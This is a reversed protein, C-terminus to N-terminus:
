RPTKKQEDLWEEYLLQAVVKTLEAMSQEKTKGTDVAYIEITGIENEIVDVLVKDGVM